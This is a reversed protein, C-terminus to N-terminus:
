CVWPVARAWRIDYTNKGHAAEDDSLWAQLLSFLDPEEPSYSCIAECLLAIDCTAYSRVTMVWPLNAYSYM